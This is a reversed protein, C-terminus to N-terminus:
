HRDFAAFSDASGAPTGTAPDVAAPWTVKLLAFTAANPGAPNTAFTIALRYRADTLPVPKGQGDFFLTTPSGFTIGFQVSTAVSRPTARLDDTVASLISAASAQSFSTQNTQVGVPLLGFVAILCFSAVGLAITIEILSFSAVHHTAAKM